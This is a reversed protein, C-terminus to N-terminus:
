KPEPRLPPFPITFPQNRGLEKDAKAGAERTVAAGNRIHGEEEPKLTIGLRAATEKPSKLLEERFQRDLYARACLTKFQDETM